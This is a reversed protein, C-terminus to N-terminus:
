INYAESINMCNVELPNIFGLFTWTPNEPLGRKFHDKVHKIEKICHDFMFRGWPFKNCLELNDVVQLLIHDIPGRYKSKGDIVTVLFYLIAVKLRDNTCDPKMQSLREKVDQVTVKLKEEEPKKNKKKKMKKLKNIFMKRFQKEAFKMSLVSQYNEPYQHCYLGSILGHERISYRIPVGNVAFRAQRSKHTVITRLLLMWLGMMKRTSTCVTHFLHKFQQHKLFWRKESEDLKDLITMFDHQHCRSQLKCFKWYDKPKFFFKNPRIPQIAM